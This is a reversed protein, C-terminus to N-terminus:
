DQKNLKDNYYDEFNNYILTENNFIDQWVKKAIIKLKDAMDEQCKEYGDIFGVCEYQNHKERIYNDLAKEKPTM